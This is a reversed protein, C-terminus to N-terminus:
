IESRVNMAHAAGERRGRQVLRPSPDLVARLVHAVRRGGAPRAPLAPAHGRGPGHGPRGAQAGQPAALRRAPLGAPPERARRGGARGGPPARLDPAPLPNALEGVAQPGEALREFIARRTPDGLADMGANTM